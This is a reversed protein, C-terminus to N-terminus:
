LAKWILGFLSKSVEDVDKSADIVHTDPARAQMDEMLRIRKEFEARTLEGPKRTQSVEYGGTLHVVLDPQIQGMRAYLSLEWRRLLGPTGQRPRIPGDMFGPALSQPWRDCLVILGRDAMRRAARVHAHRELAALLGWMSLLVSVLRAKLAPSGREPGEDELLSARIRSRRAVYLGRLLRRPWWGRGDGTGLYLGACCFKWGFLKLMRQVQTSKGMGDPAIVALIIGGSAPRRRDIISGPAMRNFLRSAAYFWARRTNGILDTLDAYIPAGCRARASRRIDALDARRVWVNDGSKKVRCHFRLGRGEHRVVREGIEGAGFLLDDLERAWDGTLNQWSGPFKPGVRFAIRSLTIAAEDMPSAIPISCSGFTLADWSRIDGYTYCPYRKNFKGGLRIDTHVDLHLYRAREFDPIFWDERGPSRLSQHNVSRIGACAAAIACFPQYDERAVLIDLDQDGTLAILTNRTSKFVGYRIGVENLREFFAVASAPPPSLTHTRYEM